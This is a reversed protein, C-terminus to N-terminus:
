NLDHRVSSIGHMFLQNSFNILEDLPMKKKDKVWQRYLNASTLCLFINIINQQEKTYDAYPNYRTRNHQLMMMFFKDAYDRYGPDCLLKEFYPDLGAVFTFFVRNVETFPADPAIKDMEEFYQDAMEKLIDEYLAEISTYHLYFTKRHIQARETLDKVTIKSADMEMVMEKFTDKIAKETKVVRLDTKRELPM